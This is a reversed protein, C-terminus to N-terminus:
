CTVHIFLGSLPAPFVDWFSDCLSRHRLSQVRALARDSFFLSGTSCGVLYRPTEDMFNETRSSKGWFQGSGWQCTGLISHHKITMSAPFRCTKRPMFTFVGIVAGPWQLHRHQSEWCPPNPAAPKEQSADRRISFAKVRSNRFLQRHRYSPTEIPYQRCRECDVLVNIVSKMPREPESYTGSSM